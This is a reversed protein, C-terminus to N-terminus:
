DAPTSIVRRCISWDSPSKFVRHGLIMPMESLTDGCPGGLGSRAIHDVVRKGKEGVQLTPYFDPQFHLDPFLVTYFGPVHRIVMDGDALDKMLAAETAAISDGDIAVSMGDRLSLQVIGVAGTLICTTVVASRAAEMRLLSSGMIILLPSVAAINYFTPPIRIGFWYIAFILFLVKWGCLKGIATLAILPPAIWLPAFNSQVFYTFIDGDTRVALRQAQKVIGWFLDEAPFPYVALSIASAAAGGLMLPLLVSKQFVTKTVVTICGYMLLIMPQTFLLFGAALGVMFYKRNLFTAEAVIVLLMAIPEPRFQFLSILALTYLAVAMSLTLSVKYFRSLILIGVVACLSVAYNIVYFAGVSCSVNFLGYILPSWFGHWIFRWAGSPDDPFLPTGLFGSHCYNASTSVFLISDGVPAPIHYVISFV